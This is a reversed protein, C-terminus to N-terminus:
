RYTPLLLLSGGESRHVRAIREHDRVRPVDARGADELREPEGRERRRTRAEGEREPEDVSRHREVLHRLVDRGDVCRRIEGDGGIELVAVPRIGRVRGFRDPPDRPGPRDATRDLVEVPLATLEVLDPVGHIPDASCDLGSM